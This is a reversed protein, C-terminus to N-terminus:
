EEPVMHRNLIINLTINFFYSVESVYSPSLVANWVFAQQTSLKWVNPTDSFTKSILILLWIKFKKFVINSALFSLCLVNSFPSYQWFVWVNKGVEVTEEM